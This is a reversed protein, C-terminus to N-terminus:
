PVVRLWSVEGDSKWVNDDSRKWSGQRPTFKIERLRPYVGNLLAIAQMQEELLLGICNKRRISDRPIELHLVEINGPLVLEGTFIWGLLM